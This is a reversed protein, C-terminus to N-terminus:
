IFNGDLFKTCTHICFIIHFYRTTENFFKPKRANVIIVDFLDRWEPGVIYSMGPDRLVLYLIFVMSKM